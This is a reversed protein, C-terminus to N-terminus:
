LTVAHPEALSKVAQLPEVVAFLNFFVAMVMSGDLLLTNTTHIFSNTANHMPLTWVRGLRRQRGAWCCAARACRWCASRVIVEDAQRVTGGALVTVEALRCQHAQMTTDDDGHLLVVAGLALPVFENLIGEIQLVYSPASRGTAVNKDPRQFNSTFTNPAATATRSKTLKTHHYINALGSSM